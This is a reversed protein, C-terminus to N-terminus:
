IIRWWLVKGHSHVKEYEQKMFDLDHPELRGAREMHFENSLCLWTMNFTSFPHHILTTTFWWYFNIEWDFFVKEQMKAEHFQSQPGQRGSRHKWQKM